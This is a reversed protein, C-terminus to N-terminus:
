IGVQPTEAEDVSFVQVGALLLIVLLVIMGIPDISIKM